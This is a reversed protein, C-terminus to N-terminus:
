ILYPFSRVRQARNVPPRLRKIEHSELLLAVLESGTLEYSVEHVMRQLKGAKETKDAFHEAVRKRINISKGVYVVEGKENHLYYVGCADPLAHLKALSFNKPLLSERLGLNVM